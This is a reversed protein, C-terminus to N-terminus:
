NKRFIGLISNKYFIIRSKEEKDLCLMWELILFLLIGFLTIGLKLLFSLGLIKTFILGALFISGLIAASQLLKKQSFVQLKIARLRYVAGLFLLFELLTRILWAVAAGKLGYAKIFFWLLVMFIPLILLFIKARLDPRGIGDLFNMPIQGLANILMAVALIKLILAANTAWEQGLWFLLLDDALLTLTFVIPGMILLLYKMSRIYLNHQRRLDTDLSSFAPFITKVFSSPLIHLRLAIDQALSYFGVAAVSSLIGLYFRDMYLLMPRLINCVTVWGGFKLLTRFIKLDIDPPKKMLPFIRLCLLFYAIGEGLRPIFYLLIIEFLSFGLLIGIVPLILNLCQGPIVVANIKGFHQGAELVGKLALSFLMLPIIFSLAYFTKKTEALLEPPINLVRETLMPTIGLLLLTGGLGLLFQFLLSTWVISSIDRNQDGGLAQSIFKTAARNLGLNLIGSYGLLALALSLIGFRDPGLGRIIIPVTFLGVLLPLSLGLFNFTTNKILLSGNIEHKNTM